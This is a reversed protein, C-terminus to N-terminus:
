TGFVGPNHHRWIRRETAEDLSADEYNYDDSRVWEICTDLMKEISIFYWDIGQFVCIVPFRSDVNMIHKESPVVYWGGNFAAFPFCTELVVRDDELTNGEGYSSIMSQYESAAIDLSSFTMDRFWFPNPESWADNAQGNRWMYLEAVPDPIEAPYWACSKEIEPRSLGPLLSDRITDAGREEYATLLANLKDTITDM